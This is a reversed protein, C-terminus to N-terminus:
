KSTRNLPIPFSITSQPQSRIVWWAAALTLAHLVILAFILIMTARRSM